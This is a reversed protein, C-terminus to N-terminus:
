LAPTIRQSVLSTFVDGSNTVSPTVGKASEFILQAFSTPLADASKCDWDVGSKQRCGFLGLATGRSALDVAATRLNGAAASRAAVDPGKDAIELKSQADYFAKVGKEVADLRENVAQFDSETTIAILRYASTRVNPRVVDALWRKHIGTAPDGPGWSDAADALKAASSARTYIPWVSRLTNLKAASDAFESSVLFSHYSDWNAIIEAATARIDARLTPKEEAPAVQLRGSLRLMETYRSIVAKSTKVAEMNTRIYTYLTFRRALDDINMSNSSSIKRLEEVTYRKKMLSIQGPATKDVEKATLFVQDSSSGLRSYLEAIIDDALPNELYSSLYYFAFPKMLLLEDSKSEKAAELASALTSAAVYESFRDPGRQWTLFGYVMTLDPDPATSAQIFSRQAASLRSALERAGDETRYLAPRAFVDRMIMAKAARAQALPAKRDLFLLQTSYYVGHDLNLNSLASRYGDEYYATIQRNAFNQNATTIAYACGSFVVIGALGWTLKPVFTKIPQKNELVHVYGRWGLFSFGILIVAFIAVRRFSYSFDNSQRSLLADLTGLRNELLRDAERLQSRITEDLSTIMESSLDSLQSVLQERQAVTLKEIDSLFAAKQKTLIQDLQQTARDVTRNAAGEFNDISPGLFVNNVLDGVFNTNVIGRSGGCAVACPVKFGGIKVNGIFAVAATSAVSIAFALLFVMRRMFRRGTPHEPIRVSSQPMNCSHVAM